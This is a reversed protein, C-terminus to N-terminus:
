VTHSIGKARQNLPRWELQRGSTLEKWVFAELVLTAFSKGTINYASAARLLMEIGTWGAVEMRTLCANKAVESAFFIRKVKYDEDVDYGVLVHSGQM